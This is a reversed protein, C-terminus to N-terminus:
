NKAHFKEKLIRLIDKHIAEIPREGDVEILFGRPALYDLLKKTNDFYYKFRIKVSEPKDDDRQVLKGGCKCAGSAPPNTILNYIRGCKVCIRRSSIRKVAEAQSVKLYVVADIDDDKNDLFSKLAEYQSIFRPFGEFLINRMDGRRSLSDIVYMTMEQEPILKGSNIIKRIRPDKEALKRSLDGTQFHYLNLSKALLRAQTGKGSAPPGLLVINM